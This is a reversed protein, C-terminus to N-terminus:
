FPVALGLAALGGVRAPQYVSPAGAIAFTPRELRTLLEVELTVALHSALRRSLSAVGSVTPSWDTAASTEAVGVGRARLRELDGAACLRAGWAAGAHRGCLGLGVASLQVDGAAGDSGLVVRNDGPFITARALVEVYGRAASLEVRAGLAAEPLLGLAGVVSARATLDIPVSAEAAPTAVVVPAGGAPAPAPPAAEAASHEEVTVLAAIVLGLTAWRERPLDNPRFTIDRRVPAHAPETEDRLVVSAEASGEGAPTVVARWCAADAEQRVDVIRCRRAGLIESCRGELAARQEDAASPGAIEVAVCAQPAVM